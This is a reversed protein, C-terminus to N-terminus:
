LETTDTVIDTAVSIINDTNLEEYKSLIQITIDYSHDILDHKTENDISFDMFNAIKNDLKITRNLYKEDILEIKSQITLILLTYIYMVIKDYQENIHFLDKIEDLEKKVMLCAGIVTELNEIPIYNIPYNNILGGDLYVTDNLTYPFFFLPVRSTAILGDLVRINPTTEYNWYEICQNTFNTVTMTFKIQSQDYLQKFTINTNTKYEILDSYFKILNIGDSLGYKLILNDINFEPVIVHFNYNFLIEQIDDLEYGLIMCLSFICGVSTGIYHNIQERKVYKFLAKFFGIYGIGKIGGGGLVITNIKKFEM